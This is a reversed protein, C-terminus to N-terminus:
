KTLNLKKKETRAKELRAMHLLESRTRLRRRSIHLQIWYVASDVSLRFHRIKLPKKEDCDQRQGPSCKSFWIVYFLERPKKNTKLEDDHLFSYPFLAQRPVWGVAASKKEM